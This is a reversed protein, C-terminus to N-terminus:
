AHADRSRRRVLVVPSWPLRFSDVPYPLLELIPDLPAPELVLRFGEEPLPEVLAGRALFHARVFGPTSEGFGPLAAAFAALVAQAPQELADLGEPAPAEERERELDDGALLRVLPDHVLSPDAPEALAVLAWLRAQVAALGLLPPQEALYDALWPYLFALGGVRSWRGAAGPSPDAEPERQPDDADVGRPTEVTAKDERDARRQDRRAAEVGEDHFTHSGPPAPTQGNAARGSAAAMLEAIARIWSSWALDPVSHAEDRSDEARDAGTVARRAPRRNGGQAASSEAPAGHGFEVALGIAQPPVGLVGAFRELTRTREAPALREYLGRALDKRAALTEVVGLLRAPDLAAFAAAVEAASVSGTGCGLEAFMWGLRGTSAVEALAAADFERDSAFRVIRVSRAGADSGDLVAAIRGAWLAAVTVDDYDGPDFDLRVNVREAFVREGAPAFLPDLAGPLHLRATRELRARLALAEEERGLPASCRLHMRTVEAQTM